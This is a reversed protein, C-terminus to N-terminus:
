WDTIDVSSWYAMGAVVGHPNWGCVEHPTALEGTPDGVSTVCIVQSAGPGEVAATVSDYRLTTDVAPTSREAVTFELAAETASDCVATAATSPTM